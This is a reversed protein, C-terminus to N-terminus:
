LQARFINAALEVMHVVCSVNMSGGRIWGFDRVLLDTLVYLKPSNCSLVLTKNEFFPLFLCVRFCPYVLTDACVLSLKKLFLYAQVATLIMVEYGRMM